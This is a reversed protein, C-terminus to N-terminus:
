VAAPGLKQARGKDDDVERFTNIIVINGPSKQIKNGIPEMGYSPVASDQMSVTDGMGTHTLRSHRSANSDLRMVNPARLNLVLRCALMTNLMLTAPLNVAQLSGDQTVFIIVNIMNMTFIGAFYILGDHFFASIKRSPIDRRWIDISKALTLIFVTTDFVLPM